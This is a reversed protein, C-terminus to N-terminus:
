VTKNHRHESVAWDPITEPNESGNKYLPLSQNNKGWAIIVPEVIRWTELVEGSTAFLTHDGRMVDVLVREYADPQSKSDFFKSYSFDMKVPEIENDLGPKKVYLELAIGENPQIRFTLSNHSVKKQGDRRFIIRIETNKQDLAKGTKIIIPVKGWRKSNIFLKLAAYTETTSRPNNVEAKYTQYQARFAVQDIKNPAPSVVEQLLKLRSRHIAIPTMSTPKEMAVVSLLQLLHSQIFDRMAGVQEYFIARNEIGIKEIASIEIRRIHQSDWISEFIANSFRFSLINQVTEKALYHDIRFIQEESFYKSTDDILEQASERNYGFPKEVLLRTKAQGHQCSKNLGHEGLFRVIPGFVQPPISLYYLRNMCMGHREEIKNLSTLLQDYDSGETVDMNQVVFRDRLLDIAKQDLSPNGKLLKDLLQNATIDQRTIGVITTKEHLLNAKILDSLAPFLKRQVLDGTVGFIVIIAPQAAETKKM